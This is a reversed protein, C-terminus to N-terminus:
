FYLYFYKIPVYVNYFFRFHCDLISLGSVDIVNIVCSVPRVCVFCYVYCPQNKNRTLCIAKFLKKLILHHQCKVHNEFKFSFAM